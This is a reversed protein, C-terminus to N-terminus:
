HLQAATRHEGASRTKHQRTPDAGGSRASCGLSFVLHAPVHRAPPAERLVSKLSRRRRFSQIGLWVLYAAGALKVATFIIESRQVVSGVGFAVAAAVVYVGLANGLVSGLAIRHGHALARGVVFMVSPGPIVILVFSVAAFSALQGATVM